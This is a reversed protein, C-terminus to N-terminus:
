LGYPGIEICQICVFARAKATPAKKKKKLCVLYWATHMKTCKAKEKGLSMGSLKRHQHM